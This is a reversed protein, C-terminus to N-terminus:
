LLKFELLIDFDSFIMSWNRVNSMPVAWATASGLLDIDNYYLFVLSPQRKQIEPRIKQSFVTEKNTHSRYMSMNTFVSLNLSYYFVFYVHFKIHFTISISM